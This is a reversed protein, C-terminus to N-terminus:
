VVEVLQIDFTLDEGALPHNADLTVSSESFDIVTVFIAGGGENSMNLKQGVEPELDAPFQSRDVTQVLEDRYPGFAEEAPIKTNKSEGPNMGVIAQEFAPIIQEDGITFELPKHGVSTQFIVDSDLKGTYHVKVTDGLKAQAM